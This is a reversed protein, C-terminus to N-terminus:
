RALMKLMSASQVNPVHMATPHIESDKPIQVAGKVPMVNMLVASSTVSAQVAPTLFSAHATSAIALPALSGPTPLRRYDCHLVIYM